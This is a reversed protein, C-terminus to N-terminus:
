KAPHQYVDKADHDSPQWGRRVLFPRLREEPQKVSVALCLIQVIVFHAEAHRLQAEGVVNLVLHRVGLGLSLNHLRRLRTFRACSQVRCQLQKAM